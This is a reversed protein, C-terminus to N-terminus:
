GQCTLCTNCPHKGVWAHLCSPQLPPHPECSLLLAQVASQATGKCTCRLCCGHGCAHLCPRRELFHPAGPPLCAACVLACWDRVPLGAHPEQDQGRWVCPLARGGFVPLVQSPPPLAAACMCVCVRARQSVQPGRSSQLTPCACMARVWEYAHWGVGEAAGLARCVAPRQPPASHVKRSM